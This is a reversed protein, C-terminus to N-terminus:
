AMARVESTEVAPKNTEGGDQAFGCTVATMLMLCTLAMQATRLKRRFGHDVQDPWPRDDGEDIPGRPLNSNMNPLTSMPSM